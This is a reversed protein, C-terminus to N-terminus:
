VVCLRLNDVANADERGHLGKRGFPPPPLVQRARVARDQLGEPRGAVLLIAEPLRLHLVDDFRHILVDEGREAAVGRRARLAHSTCSM